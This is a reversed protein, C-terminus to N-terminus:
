APRERLTEHLYGQVNFLLACLSEELMEADFDLDHARHMEWWDFFHRWASKMYADIPIGKQWNDSPRHSGDSQVSHRLMYCGFARLAVPSLYGEYDPKGDDTDRTAGTDFTRVEAVHGEPPIRTLTPYERVPKDLAWAVRAEIVAGESERWGPLMTLSHTDPDAVRQIDAALVKAREARPLDGALEPDIGRQRDMEVPSIVKFDRSRMDAAAAEFAEANGRSQGTMPGSLYTTEHTASRM